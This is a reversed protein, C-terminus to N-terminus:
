QKSLFKKRQIIQSMVTAMQERLKALQDETATNSKLANDYVVHLNALQEELNLLEAPM